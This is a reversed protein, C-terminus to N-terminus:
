LKSFLEAKVRTQDPMRSIMVQKRESIKKVYPMKVRPLQRMRHLYLELRFLRCHRNSTIPKATDETVSAFTERQCGDESKDERPKTVHVLPGLPAKTKGMSCLTHGNWDTFGM